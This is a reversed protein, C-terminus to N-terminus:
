VIRITKRSTKGGRVYEVTYTRTSKLGAYLSLAELQNSLDRGNVRTIIDGARFLLKHVGSGPKVWALEYGGRAPSIKAQSRMQSSSSVVEDFYWKEVTCSSASSCSVPISAPTSSEAGGSSPKGSSASGGSGAPKGTGTPKGSATDNSAVGAEEDPADFTRGATKELYDRWSQEGALEYRLTITKGGRAVEVELEGEITELLGRLRKPGPPSASGVKTVIDGSRLGLRHFLSGKALKGVRFGDPVGARAQKRAVRRFTPGGGTHTLHEAVLTAVFPDVRFRRDDVRVIARALAADLGPLEPEAEPERKAPAPETPAADAPVEEAAAAPAEVPPSEEEKPQCWGIALVVILASRM